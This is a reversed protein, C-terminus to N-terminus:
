RIKTVEVVSEIGAQVSTQKLVMNMKPCFWDTVTSTMGPVPLVLGNFSATTPDIVRTYRIPWCSHSGVATDITQREGVTKQGTSVVVPDTQAAKRDVNIQFKLPPFTQGAQKIPEGYAFLGLMRLDFKGNVPERGGTETHRAFTAKGDKITMWYDLTSKGVPLGGLGYSATGQVRAECSDGGAQNVKTFTLDAGLQLAGSGTLQAQGGEHMFPAECLGALAAPSVSAGMAVLGAYVIQRM